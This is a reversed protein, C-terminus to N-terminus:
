YNKLSLPMFISTPISEHTCYINHYYGVEREAIVDSQGIECRQSITQSVYRSPLPDIHTSKSDRFFETIRFDAAGKANVVRSISVNAGGVSEARRLIPEGIIERIEIQGM